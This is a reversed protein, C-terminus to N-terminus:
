QQEFNKIKENVVKLLDSIEQINNGSNAIKNKLFIKEENMVEIQQQYEANQQQSQKLSKNLEKIKKVLFDITKKLDIITAQLDSISSSKSDLISFARSKNTIQQNQIEENKNQEQQSDQNQIENNEVNKQQSEEFFQLKKQNQQNIEKLILNQEYIQRLCTQIRIKQRNQWECITVLTNKIKDYPAFSPYFFLNKEINQRDEINKEYKELKQQDYNFFLELFDSYIQKYVQPLELNFQKGLQFLIVVESKQKNQIIYDLQEDYLKVRPKNEEQNFQEMLDFKKYYKLLISNFEKLDYNETFFVDGRLFNFHTFLTIKLEEIKKYTEKNTYIILLDKIKQEKLIIKQIDEKTSINQALEQNNIIINTDKIKMQDGENIKLSSLDNLSQSHQIQQQVEKELKYFEENSICSNCEKNNNEAM